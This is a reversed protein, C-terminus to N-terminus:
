DMKVQRDALGSGAAASAITTTKTATAPTTAPHSVGGICDICTCDGLLGSPLVDCHGGVHGAIKCQSVCVPLGPPSRCANVVSAVPILPCDEEPAVGISPTPQVPGMATPAPPASPVAGPRRAAQPSFEGSGVRAGAAALLASALLGLLLAASSTNCAISAM